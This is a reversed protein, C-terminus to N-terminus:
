GRRTTATSGLLVDNLAGVVTCDRGLAPADGLLVEDRVEDLDVLGCVLRVDVFLAFLPLGLATPVGRLVATDAVRDLRAVLQDLVEVATGFHGFVEDVLDTPRHPDIRVNAHARPSTSVIVLLPGPTM